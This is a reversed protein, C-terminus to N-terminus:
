PWEHFYDCKSALEFDGRANPIRHEAEHALGRPGRM